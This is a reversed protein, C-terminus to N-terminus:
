NVWTGTAEELMANTQYKVDGPTNCSRLIAGSMLGEQWVRVEVGLIEVLGRVGVQLCKIRREERWWLERGGRVDGGAARRRESVGLGARRGGRCRWGADRTRIRCARAALIVLDGGRVHRRRLLLAARRVRVPASAAEGCAREGGEDGGRGEGGQERVRARGGRRTRALISGRRLIEFGDVWFRVVACRGVPVCREDPFRRGQSYTRMTRPRRMRRRM